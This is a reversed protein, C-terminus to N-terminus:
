PFVPYCHNNYLEEWVERGKDVPSDKDDLLNDLDFIAHVNKYDGFVKAMEKIEYPKFGKDYALIIKIDPSIRKVIEAQVKTIDSGMQSVTHFYDIQHSKLCSKEAEWMIIENKERIFPLSRHLNYLEKSKHFAYIPLYKYREEDEEKTARGKIGIINGKSDRVPITIRESRIDFGIEFEVQTHYDIGDELFMQHPLQVFEDLASEPLIPNPEIENLNVRKSKRKKIEKLWANPDHKDQNHNNNFGKLGLTELIYKKSQYTNKRLEEATKKGFKIYGVLDYITRIPIQSKTRVRSTLHENLYVQVSRNSSGEPRSAEVRENSSTNYNIECGMSELLQHVLGRNYIEEKILDLDNTM